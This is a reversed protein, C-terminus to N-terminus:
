FLMSFAPTALSKSTKSAEFYSEDWTKVSTRRARESAEKYVRQELFDAAILQKHARKQLSQM